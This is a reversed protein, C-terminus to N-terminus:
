RKEKGEKRDLGNEQIFRELVDEPDENDGLLEATTSYIIDKITQELRILAEAKEIERKTCEEVLDM